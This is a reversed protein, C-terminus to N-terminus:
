TTALPEGPQATVPPATGVLGLRRAEEGAQRRNAVELKTLVSSVHHDVTKASIFLRAAIEDNTLGEAVQELVEQERRTLGCPHARTTARVGNPVSRAGAERLRRRVVGAAAVAGLADLRDLAERQHKEEPSDTLALAAEYPCGRQDWMDVAAEVDGALQTAFPDGVPGPGRPLGLRVSWAAALGRMWPDVEGEHESAAEVEARAAPQDGELWRVEARALHIPVLYQPEGLTVGDELAQDLLPWAAGPHGRRARVQALALYTCLKNVPSLDTRALRGEALQVCEDWRGAVELLTTQSGALCNAHTGLDHGECYEMGERYWRESRVLDYEALLCSQLNAYARAAAQHAGASLAVALAREMDGLWPQGSNVLVSARTILAQSLVALQGRTEALDIAEDALALAADDRGNLMYHAALSELAETLEDSPGLPRLIELSEVAAQEAERGQCLRYHCSSLHRLTAAEHVRDGVARWLALATRRADLAEEWRDLVGCEAALRDNLQARVREDTDDAWRLAREYQQAAERHSALASAREGARTAHRLVAAADAAGEAHHALRADDVDDRDALLALVRAHV